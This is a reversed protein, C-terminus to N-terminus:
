FLSYFLGSSISHTLTGNLVNMPVVTLGEGSLIKRKLGSELVDPTKISATKKRKESSRGRDKGSKASSSNETNASGMKKRSPSPTHKPTGPSTRRSSKGPSGSPRTASHRPSDSDM